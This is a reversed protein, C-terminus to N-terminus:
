ISLKCVIFIIIRSKLEDVENVIETSAPALEFEAWKGSEQVLSYTKM